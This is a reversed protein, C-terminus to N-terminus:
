LCDQGFEPLCLPDVGDRFDTCCPKIDPPSGASCPGSVTCVIHPTPQVLLFALIGFAGNIDFANDSTSVNFAHVLDEIEHKIERVDKKVYYLEEAVEDIDRTVNKLREDVIASM